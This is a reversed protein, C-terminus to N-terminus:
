PLRASMALSQRTPGQDLFIAGHTPAFHFRWHGAYRFNFKRENQVKQETKARKEAVFRDEFKDFVELCPARSWDLGM